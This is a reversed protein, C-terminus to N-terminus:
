FLTGFGEVKEYSNGQFIIKPSIIIKYHNLNGDATFFGIVHKNDKTRINVLESKLKQIGVESYGLIEGVEKLNLPQILESNRENPNKCVINFEVNMYPILRFLTSLTKHSRTSTIDYLHRINSIFLMACNYDSPLNDEIKGKFFYDPNIYLIKDHEILMKLKILKGYLDNFANKSLRLKEKLKDKTMVTRETEMLVGDFNVFTAIYILRTLDSSTLIEEHRNINEYMKYIIFIFEGLEKETYQRFVIKADAKEKKVKYKNREKKTSYRIGDKETGVVREQNTETDRIIFEKGM